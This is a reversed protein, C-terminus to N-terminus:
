SNALKNLAIRILDDSLEAGHSRIHDRLLAFSTDGRVFSRFDSRTLGFSMAKKRLVRRMRAKEAIDGIIHLSRIILSVISVVDDSTVRIQSVGPDFDPVPVKLFNELDDFPLQTKTSKKVM